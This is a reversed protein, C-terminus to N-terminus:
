VWDVDKFLHRIRVDVYKRFINYQKLDFQIRGAVIATSINLEEALDEVAANTKLIFADHMLYSKPILAERAISNAEDEKIDNEQEGSGFYDVYLENVDDFHKWVHALEHLLTFWFNDVRDYQLTLGIVPMGRRTPIAAGNFIAGPLSKEIVLAIGNEALLNKARIPGDEYHSLQAVEIFFEKTIFDSDYEQTCCESFAKSVVRISWALLAYDNMLSNTNKHFTKRFLVSQPVEDGGITNIFKDFIQKPKTKLEELTANVWSRSVIEDLPFLSWELPYDNENLERMFSDFDYRCGADVSYKDEDDIFTKWKEIDLKNM